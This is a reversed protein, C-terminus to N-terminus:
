SIKIKQIKIKDSKPKPKFNFLVKMKRNYKSRPDIFRLDNKPKIYNLTSCIKDYNFLKRFTKNTVNFDFDDTNIKLNKTNIKKKHFNDCTKNFKHFKNKRSTLSNENKFNYWNKSTKSFDEGEMNKYEETKFNNFEKNNKYKFGISTKGMQEELECNRSKSLSKKINMPQTYLRKILKKEIRRLENNYKKESVSMFLKKKYSNNILTNSSNDRLFDSLKYACLPKQEHFLGNTQLIYTERGHGNGWYKFPAAQHFLTHFNRYRPREYDEVKKLHFQEAWYGGNDFKIYYDRGRGDPSYLPFRPRETRWLSAM